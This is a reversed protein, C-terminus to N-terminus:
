TVLALFLLGSDGTKFIKIINWRLNWPDTHYVFLISKKDKSKQIPNELTNKIKNKKKFKAQNNM